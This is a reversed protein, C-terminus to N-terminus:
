VDRPCGCTIVRKIKIETKKGRFSSIVLLVFEFTIVWLHGLCIEALCAIVFSEFPVVLIDYLFWYMRLALSGRDPKCPIWIRQIWGPLHNAM